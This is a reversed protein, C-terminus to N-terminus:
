EDSIHWQRINRNMADTQQESWGIITSSKFDNGKRGRMEGNSKGQAAKGMMNHKNTSYTRRMPQNAITYMRESILSCRSLPPFLKHRRKIIPSQPPLPYHGTFIYSSICYLKIFPHFLAYSMGHNPTNFSLLSYVVFKEISLLQNKLTLKIVM